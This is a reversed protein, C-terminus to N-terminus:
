VHARGIQQIQAGTEWRSVTAEAIGLLCALQKQTLHLSERNRRIEDPMLLKAQRLFELTIQRNAASDPHVLGCRKCRPAKLGDLKVHYTRADHEVDTELTVLDEYVAKEKCHSCKWPFPKRLPENENM